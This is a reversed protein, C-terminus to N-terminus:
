RKYTVGGPKLVPREGSAFAAIDLQDIKGDGTLDAVILEALGRRVLEANTIATVPPHVPEPLGCCAADNGQLFNIQIYSFEDTDVLGDGTVDAHFPATGCDTDASGYDVLWNMSFVGFDLIDIWNDNNFNGLVLDSTATIFDAVYQTGFIEFTPSVMTRRLSHLEDQVAVCSYAGCPVLVTASASGATFEVVEEVTVSSPGGCEWLTITLCRDFPGAEVDGDFDLSLVLENVADVTITQVQAPSVNGCADTATWTITIPSDTSDYPDTLSAGGDSRVWGIVPAGDCNDVATAAGPDVAASCLGADANVTIDGPITLVPAISDDVTITQVCQSVNGSADTATWTRTIAEEQPCAGAATSDSYDVVPAPDTDDTATAQGTFAPDSSTGCEITLDGPCVIVPATSDEWETDGLRYFAGADHQNNYETWIWGASRAVDSIRVEDMLGDLCNRDDIDGTNKWRTALGMNSAYTGVSCNGNATTCTRTVDPDGDVYFTMDDDAISVVIYHWTDDSIYVTGTEREASGTYDHTRGVENYGDTIGFSFPVRTDTGSERRLELLLVSPYWVDAALEGNEQSTKVWTSITYDNNNGLGQFEPDVTGSDFVSVYDDIGDFDDAGDIPGVANQTVGGVPTGDNAYQTSDLHVGSTEDLHHVMLFNFDWTEAVNEQNEAVPNGFYLYLTTDVTSPLFPVEVWAVLHGTSSDYTEIEHDLKTGDYTTFVLDDGDSQATTRLDDDVIDVLIPFSTLDDGVLTHDITIPKRFPWAGDWWPGQVTFSFVETTEHVGDTAYVQWQYTGYTLGSVGVQYTGDYVGSASDSGIDPITTVSYDMPLGEWDTLTFSLQSLLPPVDNAGDAPDPASVLPALSEEGGILTYPEPEVYQRVRVDDFHVDTASSYARLVAPRSGTLTADTGSLWRNTGRDDVEGSLSSGAAGLGLPYWTNPVWHANNGADWIDVTQFTGGARELLEAADNLGVTDRILTGYWNDQDQYRLGVGHRSGNEVTFKLRADIRADAPMNADTVIVSEWPEETLMNSRLEGNVGGTLGLAAGIDTEIVLGIQRTKPGIDSGGYYVWLEDNPFTDKEITHTLVWPADTDDGDWEDPGGVGFAKGIRERQGPYFTPSSDRYLEQESFDSDSRYHGVLIYYEGNYTFPATTHRGNVFLPNNPDQTWNVLDTSTALGTRRDLGSAVNNHFAYYTSGVKMVGIIELNEGAETLVPNSPDRTWNVGDPSTALGAARYTGSGVYLMYWTGGEIWVTPGIVETDDWAGPSGVDLVAGVPDDVWNTM